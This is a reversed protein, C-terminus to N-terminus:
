RASINKFCPHLRLSYLMMEWFTQSTQSGGAGSDDPLLPPKSSILHGVGSGPYWVPIELLPICSCASRVLSSPLRTCWLMKSDRSDFGFSADSNPEPSFLVRAWPWLGCLNNKYVCVRAPKTTFFGSALLPSMPEIGLHPLAGPPLFPLGPEIIRTQLIGHVSFGPLSCDMPDCFTLCLRAVSHACTHVCVM